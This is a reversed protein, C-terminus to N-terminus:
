AVKVIEGNVRMLANCLSPKMFASVEVGHIFEDGGPNKERARECKSKREDNEGVGGILRGDSRSVGVAALTGRQASAMAEARKGDEVGIVISNDGGIFNGVCGCNQTLEVRIAVALEGDVFEALDKTRRMGRAVLAVLVAGLAGITVHRRRWRRCFLNADLAGVSAVCEGEARM